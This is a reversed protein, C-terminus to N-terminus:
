AERRHMLGRSRRDTDVEYLALSGSSIFWVGAHKRAVVAGRAIAANVAQRSIGLRKSADAVSIWDTDNM